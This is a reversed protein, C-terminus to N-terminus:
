FSLHDRMMDLASYMAHYIITEYLVIEFCHRFVYDRTNSIRPLKDKNKDLEIKTLLSLGLTLVDM